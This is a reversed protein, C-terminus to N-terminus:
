RDLWNGRTRRDTAGVPCQASAPPKATASASNQPRRLLNSAPASVRQGPTEPGFAQERIAGRAAPVTATGAHAQSSDTTCRPLEAGARAPVVLRERAAHGADPPGGDRNVCSRGSAVPWQAISTSRAIPAALPEDCSGLQSHGKCDASRARRGSRRRMEFGLRARRLSGGRIKGGRQLTM